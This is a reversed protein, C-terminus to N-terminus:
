KRGGNAIGGVAQGLGGAINGILQSNNNATGYYSAQELRKIELEAMMQAEAESFNQARLQLVLADKQRQMEQQAQLNQSATDLDMGRGQAAVQGLLGQAQTVEEARLLAAQGAMQQGANARTAMLQGAGAAAGPGRMSNAAAVTNALNGQLGQQLQLQAVSTGEGRSRALLDGALTMQQGRFQDAQTTNMAPAVRADAEAMRQNADATRAATGGLSVSGPDYQGTGLLGPSQGNGLLVDGVIDYWEQKPAGNERVNAGMAANGAARAAPSPVQGPMGGEEDEEYETNSRVAM